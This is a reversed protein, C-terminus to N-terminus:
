GRRVCRFGIHSSTTDTAQPSRAPARYRQCYNPACLHSGGKLVKMESSRKASACCSRRPSAHTPQYVTDTWEWVNGIMDFLGYGNAPFVGVPSTRSYGDSELNEGPFDGQWTNAMHIGDPVLLNGWVFETGGGGGWAAYEWEQETPLDGGAWQAYARADELGVHVVPHAGLNLLGSGPGLPQRWSAGPVLAWWRSVDALQVAGSPPTFVLSAPQLQAVPVGPYHEPSLAREAQTVYGTHEVFQAFMANTVPTSQIWFGDVQEWHAPAEEPYHNDSGMLFRGPEIKVWAAERRNVDSPSSTPRKM